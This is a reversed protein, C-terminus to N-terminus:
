KKLLYRLYANPSRRYNYIPKSQDGGFSIRRYVPSPFRKPCDRYKERLYELSDWFRQGVTGGSYHRCMVPLIKSPVGKLYAGACFDEAYLDFTLKEDFRLGKERLLSSHAVICQCDFTDTDGGKWTGRVDKHWSGNKRRQQIHGSIHIFDANPCVEMKAGIPGYLSGLDVGRLYRRIDQLPMWDEHCFIVWGDEEISDIFRNYLVPIPLNEERNDLTVISLFQCRPNAMICRQYMAYDRVVSVLYFKDTM